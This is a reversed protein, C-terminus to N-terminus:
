DDDGGGGGGGGNGRGPPGGPSPAPEVPLSPCPSNPDTSVCPTPEPPALPCLEGPAFSGGWTRGFPYFGSGYFYATRTREPGGARGPGGAARRAWAVNAKRWAPYATEVKSMDLVAKYIKPGVCGEQWRLGSAKDIAVTRTIDLPESPVTGPLFLEKVTRVTAGSPKAGTFADVTASVLGDPRQFKAVPLERSVETMIASWLPASSDLSLSGRNPENNSNGMWVGVVLAPQEKAKPPALYGYAHVDRNDSTTGTKYAAPRSGGDKTRIRWEGWFPNIKPQTNGALIDTVIYSAAASAVRTGSPKADGAPWVVTGSADRIELIMTRPMLVGGNAIAGYAGTLDIPHVELTGISESIVPATNPAYRLGFDKTREFQHEIGNYFGAKIAPINLSMQLASRLRVPGRELKDAQTPTFPKAGSPAFNTVVDMFMTAATLTRDEIGILYDIPKISSGPQRWGDSLVDFQPQFKANGTGTYQASGAYALVQGTRYDMVASAANHLNRGRLNRIWARDRNPIKRQSLITNMNKSQPARAAVFVWKEVVRQMKWDLSTIVRYGGTDIKDCDDAPVDGCLISALEERAQWVFHAARWQDAAQSALVIKERKAAEYESASHDHGSLPSRSKMLDLIHNRRQVVETEFPVVLRIREQGSEPDTYTEEVANKVLDFATPSQPIAALLAAEALTLEDLNKRFYSKAAAKVGYSRNGYFNNNLYNEMISRKGEIGPYAETLRISQIIEKVKREYITGEFASPPLLGVRRDRVLQQTITSGGRQNGSLTDFVASVFGGPDFGPNEWFTKDEIATTADIVEPPIQDFTVLERRDDGLKALLVEGTRDYLISQQDFTIAEFVAKPEPLDRAFYSYAAVAGTFGIFGAFLLTSFLVIPLAVAVTRVAGGGGTTRRAAAYRRHRQRRAFSTQM